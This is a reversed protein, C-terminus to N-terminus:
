LAFADLMEFQDRLLALVGGVVDDVGDLALARALDDDFCTVQDGDLLRLIENRRVDPQLFEPHAEFHAVLADRYKSLRFFHNKEKIWDPKTLHIPCLGDVLDKEPKFAECSVCYPGEYFSEYLDGRDAIAQVMKTVGARHRPETTRIFDDNSIGLRRWTERFEGSIRDAYEQPLVGAKAAAQAIKDGHEDTGTVFLVEDGLARHWRALTDAVVTTYTHGLHPEANVYYIPTTLYFTSM